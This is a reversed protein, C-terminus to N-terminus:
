SRAKEVKTMTWIMSIKTKEPSNRKKMPLTKMKVRITKLSRRRESTL